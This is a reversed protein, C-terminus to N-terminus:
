LTVINRDYLYLGGGILAASNDEFSCDCDISFNQGPVSWRSSPLALTIYGAIGLGSHDPQSTRFYPACDPSLVYMAGGMSQM